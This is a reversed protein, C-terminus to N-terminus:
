NSPPIAMKMINYSIKGNEDFEPQLFACFSLADPYGKLDFDKVEVAVTNMFTSIFGYNRRGDYLLNLFYNLDTKIGCNVTLFQLFNRDPETQPADIISLVIIYKTGKFQLLETLADAYGTDADLDLDWSGSFKLALSINDIVAVQIRGNGPTPKDFTGAGVEIEKVYISGAGQSLTSKIYNSSYDAYAERVADAQDGSFINDISVPIFGLISTQGNDITTLWNSFLDNNNIGYSPSIGGLIDDGGGQIYIKRQTSNFWKEDAEKFDVSAQASVDAFVGKYEATIKASSDTGTFSSDSNVAVSYYLVGGMEIQGIFHTGFKNFFNFFPMPNQSDYSSPLNKYDPDSTINNSLAAQDRNSLVLGYSFIRASLSCFSSSTTDNVDKNFSADASASFGMYSGDISAQTAFHSNYDERTAYSEGDASSSGDDLKRANKPISFTSTGVTVPNDTDSQTMDYISSLLTGNLPGCMQIGVGLSGIGTIQPLFNNKEM